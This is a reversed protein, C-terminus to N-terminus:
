WANILSRLERAPNYLLRQTGKTNCQTIDCRRPKPSRISAKLAKCNVTKKKSQFPPYYKIVNFSSKTNRSTGAQHSLSKVIPQPSILHVHADRIIVKKSFVCGFTSLPCLLSPNLEIAFTNISVFLPRNYILYRGVQHVSVSRPPWVRNM